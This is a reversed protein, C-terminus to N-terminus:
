GRRLRPGAIAPLARKKKTSKVPRPERCLRRVDLPPDARRGRKRNAAVRPITDASRVWRGRGRSMRRRGRPARQATRRSSNSMKSRCCTRDGRRAPCLRPLAQGALSLRPVRGQQAVASVRARSRKVVQALRVTTRDAPCVHGCFSFSAAASALSRSEITRKARPKAPPKPALM